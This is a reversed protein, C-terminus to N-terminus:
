FKQNYSENTIENAFVFLRTLLGEALLGKGFRIRARKQVDAFRTQVV